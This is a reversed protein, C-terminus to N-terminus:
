EIYGLDRLSEEIEEDIDRREGFIGEGDGQYGTERIKELIEVAEDEGYGTPSERHQKKLIDYDGEDDILRYYDKNYELYRFDRREKEDKLLSQGRMFRDVDMDLVDFITPFVDITSVPTERVEHEAGPVHLILPVQVSCDYLHNHVIINKEGLCLAHDATLIIVTENYTGTEKLHNILRGVHEDMYRIESDYLYELRHEQKNTTNVRVAGGDDLFYGVTKTKEEEGEFEEEFREVYEKEPPMYPDHPDFYHLWSFYKGDTDEIIEIADDTVEEAVKRDFNENLREFIYLLEEDFVTGEFEPLPRDIYRDFNRGFGHEKVLPTHAAIGFTYYGANRMERVLSFSPDFNVHGIGNQGADNGIGDTDFYLSSLVQAMSYSTTGTPSVADKFVISEEALRDINPTTNREYGYFGLRDARLKESTIFIVNYDRDPEPDELSSRLWGHNGEAVAAYHAATGISGLVVAAVLLTILLHPRKM